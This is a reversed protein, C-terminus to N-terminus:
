PHHVVHSLFFIRRRLRPQLKRLLPLCSSQQACRHAARLPRASISRRDKGGGKQIIYDICRLPIPPLYEGDPNSPRNQITSAVGMYREAKSFWPSIEAYDVPWNEGFGDLDAAKFDIDGFRASSRGWFNAKGGTAKCRKWYWDTGPANSYAVDHEFLDRGESYESEEVSYPEQHAKGQLRSRIVTAASIEPRLSPPAASLGQRARHAARFQRRLGESGGRVPDELGHRRGGRNGGSDRRLSKDPM